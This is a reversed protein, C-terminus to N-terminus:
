FLNVIGVAVHGPDWLGALALVALKFCCSAQRWCAGVVVCGGPVDCVRLNKLWACVTNATYIGYTFCRLKPKYYACNPLAQLTASGKLLAACM